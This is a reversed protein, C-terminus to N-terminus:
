ALILVPDPRCGGLWSRRKTWSDLWSWPTTLVVCGGRRVIGPLRDLFAGPDPLRCLLNAALVADVPALNAPLACADGARFRVRSADTGAPLQAMRQEQVRGRTRPPTRVGPVRANCHLKRLVQPLPLKLASYGYVGPLPTRLSVARVASPSAIYPCLLNNSCCRQARVTIRGEVLTHYPMSGEKRMTDAARVFARSYDIGLVDKFGCKTLEFTAGGVACGIDLAIPDEREGTFDKLAACHREVLLACRECFNM